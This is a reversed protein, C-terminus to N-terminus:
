EVGKKVENMRALFQQRSKKPSSFIIEDDPGFVSVDLKEPPIINLGPLAILDNVNIQFKDSLIKTDESKVNINLDNIKFEVSSEKMESKFKSHLDVTSTVQSSLSSDNEDKGFWAPPSSEKIKRLNEEIELIRLNKSHDRSLIHTQYPIPGSCQKKCVNCYWKQLDIVNSQELGLYNDKLTSDPPPFAGASALQKSLQAANIKKKHGNSLLHQQYPVPGSFRMVCMDCKFLSQSESFSNGLSNDGSQKKHDDSVLHIQYPLAGNFEMKCIDCRAFTQPIIKNVDGESVSSQLDSLSNNVRENGVSLDTENSYMIENSSGCKKKHGASVLHQQYPEPGSFQKQCPKCEAFAIVKMPSVLSIPSEILQKHETKEELTNSGSQDFSPQPVMKNLNGESGSSQSDYFSNNNIKENGDNFNTKSSQMEYSYGCKKKHGASVLHQQYPEPGSFQKQCPKCEAFAIVKMPSVLSIPSEILQKHETKEELTNSGSQDFSPQPVMKNLNGESGSSQSDYFSNNNIKENGDNFNTKSSQMEYSYGCKKKHGASVLHQQYPEPGSFQKQCPKCEAFAIVKMPSVLSIPSEILQKHETKEELTNSGSQDFSPQPVMKNLNGESGSSQSDYFSNNNIKENGDNFNTKSSQMEYSYGCKKKHGASVLHQQYPEPGSFQKQCPKCEALPAVVKIPSTFSVTNEMPQNRETKLEFTSSLSQSLLDGKKRQVNLAHDLSIVHKQYNDLGLISVMCVPCHFQDLNSIKLMESTAGNMMRVKKKHKESAEHQQFCFLGTFTKACVDCKYSEM